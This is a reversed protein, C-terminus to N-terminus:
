SLLKRKYRLLRNFIGARKLYLKLYFYFKSKGEMIYTHMYTLEEKRDPKIQDNYKLPMIPYTQMNAYPSNEDVTNLAGVGFGINAVLNQNPIISYMENYWLAFTLAYDWTQLDNKQLQHFVTKWYDVEVHTNFYSKLVPTLKEETYAKMSLDYYDITRKWTAWGWIHAYASYHYSHDSIPKSFLNTGSIVGIQPNNEYRLLLEKCYYYFDPHPVCDHELIIGMKVESFFWKIFKYPAKAPGLNETLFLTKVECEWDVLSAISRAANCDAAENEKNLRPGDAAIYLQKPQIAKISNFVEMATDIRNFIILLVPIEFM